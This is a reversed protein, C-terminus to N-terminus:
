DIPLLGNLNLAIVICSLNDFSDKALASKIIMSAFDGCLQPIDEDNINETMQKERLVINICELLEENSLVDFIGDCGIIILNYEENLEIENIDPLAIIVMKNGGFREDKAQIDGFTRSVSLRGPLVRWPIDIKKGNQYLPFLTPTQYIKGGSLEIRAKEIMSNPKHDITKFSVIGNRFIILRSDGINGIICKKDKIMLMIGCSGSSDKIEGNEDVANNSKFREETIDIGIKLGLISFEKINKHLNEKLYTSCGKGGHGDYISFYYCYDNKDENFFIKTVTISDENYDRINGNSSNYGYGKIYDKKNIDEKKSIISEEFNKYNKKFIDASLNVTKQIPIVNPLNLPSTTGITNFINNFINIKNSIIELENSENSKNNSPSLPQKINNFKINNNLKINKNYIINNTPKSLRKIPNIMSPSNIASNDKSYFNSNTNKIIKLKSPKINNIKPIKSIKNKINVMENKLIINNNKYSNNREKEKDEDNKFISEKNFFINNDKNNIKIRNNRNTTMNCLSNNKDFFHFESAYKKNIDNLVPFPIKNKRMVSNCNKKNINISNNKEKPQEITINNINKGGRYKNQSETGPRFKTNTLRLEPLNKKPTIKVNEINLKKKIGKFKIINSEDKLSLYNKQLDKLIDNKM